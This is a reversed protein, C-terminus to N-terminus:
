FCGIYRVKPSYVKTPIVKMIKDSSVTTITSQSSSGNNKVIKIFFQKRDGKTQPQNISSCPVLRVTSLDKNSFNGTIFCLFTTPLLSHIIIKLKYLGYKSVTLPQGYTRLISSEPRPSLSIFGSPPCLENKVNSNLKTKNNEIVVNTHNDIVDKSTITHPICKKKGSTGGFDITNKIENLTIFSQKRVQQVHNSKSTDANNIVKPNPTDTHPKLSRKQNRIFKKSSRPFLLEFHTSSEFLGKVNENIMNKEDLLVKFRQNQFEKCSVVFKSNMNQIKPKEITNFKEAVSIPIISSLPKSLTSTSNVSPLSQNKVEEKNITKIIYNVGKPILFMKSKPDNSSIIKFGPKLTPVSKNNSIEGPYLKPQLRTIIKTNPNILTTAPMLAITPKKIQNSLTPPILKINSLVAKPVAIKELNLSFNNPRLYINNENKKSTNLVFKTAIMKKLPVQQNSIKVDNNDVTIFNVKKNQEQVKTSTSENLKTVEVGRTSNNKNLLTSLDSHSNLPEIHNENKKPANILLTTAVMKTFPVGRQISIEVNSNDVIKLNEIKNLDKVKTITFENLKTVDINKENIKPSNIVSTTAINPKVPMQQKSIELIEFKETKNQEQVKTSTSEILKTIEIGSSSSSNNLSSSTYHPDVNKENIKPSSIVSSTAIIPKVPVQLNSIELIEFKETKNQEQEKTSTSGILKTVEIGSTSSSNDLSSSTYHSDVNKENIIPSNIVSSTAIIPKVPVQLKSIELIEFKETKNQEQVKTSTSENLKTVETGSTSSIVNIQSSKCYNSNNLDKLSNLDM